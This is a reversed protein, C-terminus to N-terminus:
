GLLGVDRVYDSGERKIIATFHEVDQAPCVFRGAGCRVMVQFLRDLKTLESLQTETFFGGQERVESLLALKRRHADNYM